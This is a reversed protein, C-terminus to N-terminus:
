FEIRLGLSIASGGREFAKGWDAFSGITYDTKNEDSIKSGMFYYSYTCTFQLNHLLNIGAMAGAHEYLSSFSLKSDDKNTFQELGVGAFPQFRLNRLFCFEKGLGIEYRTFDKYNQTISKIVIKMEKAEYGGEIYLKIMSPAKSKFFSSINIELRGSIGNVGGTSSAASLAFGIDSRQQLLMGDDLKKGAVQYFVSPESKGTAVMRNDVIKNTARIVGQRRAKIEGNNNQRMEYVFYRQDIKLNEKM